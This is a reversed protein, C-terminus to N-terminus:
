SPLAAVWTAADRLRGCWNGTLGHCNPCLIDLNEIRFDPRIGNKHHLQLPILVGEWEYLGCMHCKEKFYGATLLKDRMRTNNVFTSNEILIGDLPIGLRIRRKNQGHEIAHCNACLMTLNEIRNDTNVRNKHHLQIPVRDCQEAVSANVRLTLRNCKCCRDSFYGESLLRIKLRDICTYTSDRVLIESLPQGPRGRRGHKPPLAISSIPRMFHSTGLGLSVIRRKIADHNGSSIGLLRAVGTLNDAGAIATSFQKDPFRSVLTPHPTALGAGELWYWITSPAKKVAKCVESLSAGAIRLRIAEQRLKQNERM